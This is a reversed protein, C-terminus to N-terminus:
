KRRGVNSFNGCLCWFYDFDVFGVGNKAKRARSFGFRLEIFISFSLFQMHFFKFALCTRSVKRNASNRLRKLHM